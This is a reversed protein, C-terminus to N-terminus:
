FFHYEVGIDAFTIKIEKGNKLTIEASDCGTIRIESILKKYLYPDFLGPSYSGSLIDNVLKSKRQNKDCKSKIGDIYKSITKMEEILEGLYIRDYDTLDNDDRIM